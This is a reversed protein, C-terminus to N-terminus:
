KLDARPSTRHRPRSDIAAAPCPTSPACGPRSTWTTSLLLGTTQSDNTRAAALECRPVYTIYSAVRGRPPVTRALM